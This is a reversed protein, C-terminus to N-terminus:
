EGMRGEGNEIIWMDGSRGGVDFRMLNSEKGSAGIRGAGIM